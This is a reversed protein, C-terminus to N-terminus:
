KFDICFRTGYQAGCKKEIIRDNSMSIIELDKKGNCILSCIYM